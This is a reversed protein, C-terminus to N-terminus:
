PLQDPTETLGYYIRPAGDLCVKVKGDRATLRRERGICDLERVSSGAAAM